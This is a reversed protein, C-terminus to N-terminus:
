ERLDPGDVVDDNVIGMWRTSGLMDSIQAGCSCMSAARWRRELRLGLGVGRWGPLVEFIDLLDNIYEKKVKGVVRVNWLERVARVLMVV